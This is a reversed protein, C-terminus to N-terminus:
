APRGGRAQHADAVDWGTGERDSPVTQGQAEAKEVDHSM